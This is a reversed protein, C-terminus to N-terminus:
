SDHRMHRIPIHPTIGVGQSHCHATVFEGSILLASIDSFEIDDDDVPIHRVPNFATSKGMLEYVPVM